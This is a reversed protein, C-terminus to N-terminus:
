VSHHTKQVSNNEPREWGYANPEDNGINYQGANQRIADTKLIYALDNPVLADLDNNNLNALCPAILGVNMKIPHTTAM